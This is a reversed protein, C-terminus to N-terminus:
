AIRTIEAAAALRRNSILSPELRALGLRGLATWLRWVTTKGLRLHTVLAGVMTLAFGVAAAEREAGHGPL